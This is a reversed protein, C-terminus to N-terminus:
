PALPPEGYKRASSSQSSPELEVPGEDSVEDHMSGEDDNYCDELNNNAGFHRQANNM